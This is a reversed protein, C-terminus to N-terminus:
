RGCNMHCDDTQNDCDFCKTTQYVDIGEMTKVTHIEDYKLSRKIAFEKAFHLTKFTDCWTDSSNFVEFM